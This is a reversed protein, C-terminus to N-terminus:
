RNETLLCMTDVLSQLHLPRLPCQSYITEISQLITYDISLEIKHHNTIIVLNSIPEPRLGIGFPYSAPIDPRLGIGFPHSATDLRLGIEFPNSAPIDPWLSIISSYGASPRDRLSTISYGALPIHHQFIRGFASGSPIYHQIRSFPYSATDPQLSTISSYGASPRDRLSTISYGALPIHYQFVRGFASGSPIHHQIRGFPYSAQIISCGSIM